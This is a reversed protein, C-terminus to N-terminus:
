DENREDTATILRKTLLSPNRLFNRMDFVVSFVLIANAKVFAPPLVPVRTGDPVVKM